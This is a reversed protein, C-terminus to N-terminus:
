GELQELQKEAEYLHVLSVKGIYLSTDEKTREGKPLRAAQADRIWQYYQDPTLEDFAAQVEPTVHTAIVQKNHSIQGLLEQKM